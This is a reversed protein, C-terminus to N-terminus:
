PSAEPSFSKFLPAPDSRLTGAAAESLLKDGTVRLLEEGTMSAVQEIPINYKESIRRRAMRQARALDPRLTEPAPVEVGVDFGHRTWDETPRALRWALASLAALGLVLLFPAVDGTTARGLTRISNDWLATAAPPAHRAEDFLLIGEPPVLSRALAALWDDNEYELLRLQADMFLGTDAVLVLTGEGVQARVVLPFPGAPDALDIEGNGNVDVYSGNPYEAASTWALVEFPAPAADRSVDRLISPSNLLVRFARGDPEAKADAVPLRPDGLHNRSDLLRQTGFAWGAERAVDTGFGGEDALLVNGGARLFALVVAAEDADYRREPGVAVYLARSPEKLDSLAHPTSLLADTSGAAGALEARALGMEEDGERFASLHRADRDYVFPGLLALALLGLLACALVARARRGKLLSM